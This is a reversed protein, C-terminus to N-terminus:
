KNIELSIKEKGFDNIINKYENNSIFSDEMATKIKKVVGQMNQEKAIQAIKAVEKYEDQNIEFGGRNTIFVFTLSLVIAVVFTFFESMYNVGFLKWKGRSM